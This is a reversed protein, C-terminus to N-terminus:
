GSHSVWEELETLDGNWEDSDTLSGAANQWFYWRHWPAPVTPRPVDWHAIWLAWPALKACNGAEAFAPNTYVLIRHGPNLTNMTRCFVWAWFSVDIPEIGFATELDVVFHDHPDLGHARVYDSFYRAQEAPDRNPHAFHYAFRILGEARMGAWNAPFGPAQYTVGETAKAMGFSIREKWGAWGIQYSVDIGRVTM